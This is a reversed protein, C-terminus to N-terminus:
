PSTSAKITRERATPSSTFLTRQKGCRQRHFPCIAFKHLAADVLTLERMLVCPLSVSMIIPWRRIPSYTAIWMLDLVVALLERNCSSFQDLSIQTKLKKLDACTYSAPQIATCGSPVLLTIASSSRPLIVALWLVAQLIWRLRFTSSHHEAASPYHQASVEFHFTAKGRILSGTM